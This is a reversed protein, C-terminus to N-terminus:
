SEVDVTQPSKGTIQSILVATLVMIAGFTQGTSITEMLIVVSLLISIIPELNMIMATRTPGAMQVARFFAPFAFAFCVLIIGLLVLNKDGVPLQFNDLYVVYITFVILNVCFMRFTIQEADVHALKHGNWVLTLAVGIAAVFSMVLGTPNLESTGVDLALGLGFLALLMLIITMKGPLRRTIISDFVTTLLPYLYLVLIVTSVPSVALATFLGFGVFMFLLGSVVCYIEDRFALSQLRGTFLLVIGISIATVMARLMLITAPNSGAQYLSPAGINTIALLAAAIAALIAGVSSLSKQSRLSRM